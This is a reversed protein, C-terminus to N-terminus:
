IGWNPRGTPLFVFRGSNTMISLQHNNSTLLVGNRPATTEDDYDEM